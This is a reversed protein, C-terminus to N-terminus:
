QAISSLLVGNLSERFENVVHSFRNIKLVVIVLRVRLLFTHQATCQSYSSSMRQKRASSIENHETM